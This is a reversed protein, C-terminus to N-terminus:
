AQSGGELEAAEAQEEASSPSPSSIDRIRSGDFLLHMGEIIVKDTDSLGSLIETRGDVTMGITVDRQVATNGDDSVVFVHQKGFASIISVEPVVIANNRETTYLKLKAYMGANIRSDMQNFSLRLEKTRSTSDVIPSVRVVTAPFNVGPYAELSIDAQMGTRLLAAHREPVNATVQLNGISGIMAVATTTTVTTGPQLPQSIIAGSLPAVVPSMAYPVGPTSPDVQAIVQGRTVTSGLSVNTSVLKGPMDPYVEISQTAEVDGSSPIYDILTERSVPASRVSYIVEEDMREPRRPGSGSPMKFVAVVAIVCIVLAIIIAAVKKSMGAM